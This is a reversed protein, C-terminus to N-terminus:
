TFAHRIPGNREGICSAQGLPPTNGDPCSCQFSGETNTCNSCVGQACEDIDAYIVCLLSKM